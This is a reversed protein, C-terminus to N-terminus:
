LAFLHYSIPTIGVATIRLYKRLLVAKAKSMERQHKCHIEWQRFKGLAGRELMWVKSDEKSFDAESAVRSAKVRGM